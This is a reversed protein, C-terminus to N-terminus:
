VAAAGSIIEILENTIAAQRSRNYHLTLRDIMDGANRTANDMATMRSGQEGAASELLAAYLQSVLHKVLMAELVVHQPPEFIEIALPATQQDQAAPAGEEDLFPVLRQIVLEQSIASKFRNYVLMAQDFVGESYFRLIVEGLKQADESSILKRVPEHAHKEEDLDLSVLTSSEAAYLIHQGYDRRLADRGKRGICLLKIKKGASELEKIHLRTARIVTSNFAGCLGRDSTMVVLLITENKGHGALLPSPERSPDRTGALDLMMKRMFRTYPRANEAREQARRLKSAAVMKMASTIKRTSKVSAIRNKLDKLSPM